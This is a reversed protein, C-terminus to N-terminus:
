LVDGLDVLYPAQKFDGGDQRCFGVARIHKRLKAARQFAVFARDVFDVPNAGHSEIQLKVRQQDPKKSVAPELREILLQDALQPHAHHQNIALM